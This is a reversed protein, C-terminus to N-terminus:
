FKQLVDDCGSNMKEIAQRSREIGRAASERVTLVSRALLSSCLIFVTLAVLSDLMTWGADSGPRSIRMRM